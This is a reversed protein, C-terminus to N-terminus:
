ATKRYERVCSVAYTQDLGHTDRALSRAVVVAVVDEGTTGDAMGQAKAFPLSRAIDAWAGVRTMRHEWFSREKRKAKDLMVILYGGQMRHVRLVIGCSPRNVGHKDYDFSLETGVPYHRAKM